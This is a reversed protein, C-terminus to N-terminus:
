CSASSKAEIHVEGECYLLLRHWGFAFMGRFNYDGMGMGQPLALRDGRGKNEETKGSAVVVM